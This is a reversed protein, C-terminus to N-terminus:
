FRLAVSVSKKVGEDAGLRCRGVDLGGRSLGMLWATGRVGGGGGEGLVVGTGPRVRRSFKMVGVSSAEM